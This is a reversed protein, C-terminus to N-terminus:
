SYFGCPDDQEKHIVSTVTVKDVTQRKIANDFIIQESTKIYLGSFLSYFMFFVNM